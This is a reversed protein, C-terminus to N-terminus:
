HAYKKYDDSYPIIHEIRLVPDDYKDLEITGYYDAQGQFGNYASGKLKALLEADQETFKAWFASSGHDGLLVQKGKINIVYAEVKIKKGSNFAGKAEVETCTWEKYDSKNFSTAFTVFNFTLILLLFIKRM